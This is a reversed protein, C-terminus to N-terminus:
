KEIEIVPRIGYINTLPLYRASGYTGYNVNGAEVRWAAVFDTHGTLTYYSEYSSTNPNKGVWSPCSGPTVLCKVNVLEQLSIIRARASRIIENYYSTNTNSLAWDGIMTYNTDQYTITTNYPNYEIPNKVFLLGNKGLSYTIKPVNTWDKTIEEVADLATIPGDSVNNSTNWQSTTLNKNTQLTITDGDDHLVNFSYIENDNVRYFIITGAECSGVSKDEYCTTGKCTDEKGTVCYGYTGSSVTNNYEVAYILNPKNNICSIKEQNTNNDTLTSISDFVNKNNIGVLNSIEDKNSYMIIGLIIVLVAVIFIYKNKFKNM